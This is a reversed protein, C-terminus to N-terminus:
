EAQWVSRSQIVSVSAVPLSWLYRHVLIPVSVHVLTGICTGVYTGLYRCLCQTCVCTCLLYLYWTSLDLGKGWCWPCLCGFQQVVLFQRVSFGRGGYGCVRFWCLHIYFQVTIKLILRMMMTMEPAKLEETQSPVGSFHGIVCACSGVMIIIIKVINNDPM